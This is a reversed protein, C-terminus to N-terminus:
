SPRKAQQIDSLLPHSGVLAAIDDRTKGARVAEKMELFLSAVAEQDLGWKPDEALVARIARRELEERPVEPDLGTGAESELDGLNLSSPDLAVAFVGARASIQAALPIADLAIRRLNLRGTLRLDIVAEPAPALAQIAAVAAEVLAGVGDKLKNGFPTCPLATRLVPRRPCSRLELRVPKSPRAPDIELVAYGRPVPQGAKDHSYAAERLDCNEPSGPNCAWDEHLMPKHIHGLALYTVKERIFGLDEKSFGGGEGVFYDPGAHLLLVHPLPQNFLQVLQRVKAPTAAGLYGAGVFRV